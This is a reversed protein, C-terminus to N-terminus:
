FECKNINVTGNINPTILFNKVESTSKFAIFILVTTVILFISVSVIPWIQLLQLNNNYKNLTKWDRKEFHKLPLRYNSNM